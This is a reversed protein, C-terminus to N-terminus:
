NQLMAIHFDEPFFRFAGLFCPFGFVFSSWPLESRAKCVFRPKRFPALRQACIPWRLSRAHLSPVRFSKQSLAESSECARERFLTVASGSESLCRPFWLSLSLSLSGLAQQLTTLQGTGWGVPLGSVEVPAQYWVIPLEWKHVPVKKLFMQVDGHTRSM